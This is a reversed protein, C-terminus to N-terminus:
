RGQVMASQGDEAAHRLGDGESLCDGERYTGNREDIRGCTGVIGAVLSELGAGHLM